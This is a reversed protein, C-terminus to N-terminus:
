QDEDEAAARHVGGYFGSLVAGVREPDPEQQGVSKTTQSNPLQAMPIRIPLGADSTGGDTPQRSAATAPRDTSTHDRSWWVSPPDSARAAGLVDEARTPTARRAPTTRIVPEDAAADRYAEPRRESALWRAPSSTPGSSTPAVATSAPLTSGLPTASGTPSPDIPSSDIPSPDAPSPAVRRAWPLPRAPAPALLQGPLSVLAAVGPGTSRIDVKIGYRGALHGVVVLGMREAAAVDISVPESLQHNARVVAEPSMGIGDDQIVLVANGDPASWGLVTVTTDPPSFMTANELLEAILHVLDAVVHGAVYVEDAIDHRVRTYYEIEATAALVVVTLAVPESWRRSADGGALVLLNEDNRRMRTALHDLRFLNDLQEPDTEASELTDLLQLQREVLAQSRRALNVFIANVNHRMMAQESALRVASRHVATFAEAVEGIEDTAQISIPEVEITSAGRPADRLQEIAQPLRHQAIEFAEDRLIRLTTAMSRGVMISVLLALVLLALVTTSVVVTRRWQATSVQDAGDIAYALLQAEASRLLELETTSAQWWQQADVGIRVAQANDLITEELRSANRVAQGTVVDDYRALQAPTAQSRFRDLAAQRKARMDAIAEYEGPAFSTARSVAYLRGRIQASYEKVAALDVVAWVSRSVMTNGGVSAPEPLMGLLDDVTATYADFVAAGRLWGGDVGARVRTLETLSVSAARYASAVAPDDLLPQAAARLATVARDVATRDPALDAVIRPAGSPSSLAAIMGATHDRERQIEHILATMPRGLAVQRSLRDLAVASSVSSSALVVALTLLGLAPVILVVTLKTRVRWDHARTLVRRRHNAIPTPASSTTSSSM